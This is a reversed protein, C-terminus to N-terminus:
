LITCHCGSEEGISKVEEYSQFNGSNEKIEDHQHHNGGQDILTSGGTTIEKEYIKNKSDLTWESAINLHSIFKGLYSEFYLRDTDECNLLMEVFRELRQLETRYLADSFYSLLPTTENKSYCFSYCEIGHASMFDYMDQVNAMKDDVFVLRQPTIGASNFLEYQTIHKPVQSSFVIGDKFAPTCMTAAIGARYYLVTDIPNTVSIAPKTVHNRLVDFNMPQLDHTTSAFDIDFHRLLAIRANMSDFGMNSRECKQNQATNAICRVENAQLAKIFQPIHEDMLTINSPSHSMHLYAFFREQVQEELSSFRNWLLSKTIFHEARFPDLPQTILTDDIDFVVVDQSGFNELPYQLIWRIDESKYVGPEMKTKSM